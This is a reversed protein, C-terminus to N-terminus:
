PTVSLLVASLRELSALWRDEDPRSYALRLFGGSVGDVTFRAGPIGGLRMQTLRHGITALRRPPGTVSLHMGGDARTVGLGGLRVIAMLEHRRAALRPVRAAIVADLDPGSALQNLRATLGDSPATPLAAGDLRRAALEPIVALGQHRPWGLLKTISLLHVTREPLLAALPPPEIAATGRFADDEIVVADVQEVWESLGILWDPPANRGAPNTHVGPVYVVDPPPGLPPAFPASWHLPDLVITADGPELLAVMGPWAPVVTALRLGLRRSAAVLARVSPGTGATGVCRSVPTTGVLRGVLATMAASDALAPREAPV